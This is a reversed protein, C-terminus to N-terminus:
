PKYRTDISFKAPYLPTVNQYFAMIDRMDKEFDTPYIVKGIGATKTKYDVYGLCIPVGAGQAVHYFGTKWEERKSRSGEPTVVIIMDKKGEFLNVMAEVLSPRPANPTKPSRDVPVAGLPRTLLGFPFRTWEKKITVKMRLGYIGFAAILYWYDWNTTHPAAVVICKKMEPPLNKDVKWGRLWFMFRYFWAM